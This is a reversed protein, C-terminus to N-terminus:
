NDWFSKSTLLTSTIIEMKCILFGLGLPSLSTVSPKHSALSPAPVWPSRGRFGPEKLQGVNGKLSKFQFGCIFRSPLANEDLNAANRFLTFSQNKKKKEIKSPPIPFIQLTWIKIVGNWIKLGKLFIILVIIKRNRKLTESKIGRCNFSSM